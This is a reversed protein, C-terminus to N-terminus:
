AAPEKALARRAKRLGGTVSEVLKPAFGSPLKAGIERHRRWRTRALRRRRGCMARTSERATLDRWRNSRRM